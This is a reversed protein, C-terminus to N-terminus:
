IKDAMEKEKSEQRDLAVRYILLTFIIVTEAAGVILIAIAFLLNEYLESALGLIVFLFFFLGIILEMSIIYRFISTRLSIFYLIVTFLLSLSFYSIFFFDFLSDATTVTIDPTTLGALLANQQFVLDSPHNEFHIAIRAYYDLFFHVDKSVYPMNQYSPCSALNAFNDLKLNEFDKYFQTYSCILEDMNYKEQSGSYFLFNHKTMNINIGNNQLYNHLFIYNNTTTTTRVMM